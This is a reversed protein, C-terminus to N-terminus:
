PPPLRLKCGHPRHLFTKDCSHKTTLHMRLDAEDHGDTDPRAIHFLAVAVTGIKKQLIKYRLHKM